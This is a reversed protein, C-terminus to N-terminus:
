PTLLKELYAVRDLRRAGDPLAMQCALMDVDALSHYPTGRQTHLLTSRSKCVEYNELGRVNRFIDVAGESTTFCFIGQRTLWAPDRPIPAWADETAGWQAELDTLAAHVRELNAAADRIWFDVDFTLMPQHRLLFNMGGILLCDVQQGAFAALIREANM